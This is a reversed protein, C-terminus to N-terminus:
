PISNFVCYAPLGYVLCALIIMGIKDGLTSKPPDGEVWDRPPSTRGFYQGTQEKWYGMLIIPM